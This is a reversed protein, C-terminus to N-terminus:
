VPGGPGLWLKGTAKARRKTGWAGVTERISNGQRSHQEWHLLYRSGPDSKGLVEWLGRCDGAGGYTGAAESVGGPAGRGAGNRKAGPPLMPLM